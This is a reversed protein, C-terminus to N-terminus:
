LFNQPDIDIYVRIASPVKVSALWQAIMKQINLNKDAIILLRQRFKSRIKYMQAPAPGLIRVGDAKPAQRGIELAIARTQGEDKGAVILAALRSFPPMHAGEREELLSDLFGNRDNRTLMQMIPQEPNYTQLFVRGPFAGRGARGAVQQLLQFSHEGARLDGGSLGLDADIIGVCTMHPFHHGKAILQTGIILNVERAHIKAFAAAMLEPTNLIDSAMILPRAAPLYEDIEAAIREVGPGCPVFSNSDACSPCASPLKIKYGCHHCELSESRRHEVLWATCHPCELRHGCSRCLTLPAFGRRNLFLLAQRGEALTESLHQLLIPSIFCNKPPPNKRLDLLHVDPLQADGFRSPLRIEDYKGDMSNKVTELSPTASSLIIPVQETAARLVAMDRANYILIEEQKYASEHEEDVVILGLNAYPLFLASRAGVIVKAEGNVISRWNKRRAAPTLASHWLTPAHGFRASFRDIFAHSLAIEPLLVLAQKGAAIVKAVAEFYVETKGSGTVGDLLIPKYKKHPNQAAPDILDCLKQAAIQQESSLKVPTFRIPIPLVRATSKAFNKIILGRKELTAIHSRKCSLEQMLEAMTAASNQLYIRIAEYVGRTSGKCGHAFDWWTADNEGAETLQYVAVAPPDDLASAVPVALKLVSGRPAMNYSAVRDVFQRMANSLPPLDYVHLISKLKETSQPTGLEQATEMGWIVGPIQQGGFPILVFGGIQPAQTGDGEFIYSYAKDIPATPLVTYITRSTEYGRVQHPTRICSGPTENEGDTLNQERESSARAPYPLQVGSICLIWVSEAKETELIRFSELISPQHPAGDKSVLETKIEPAADPM